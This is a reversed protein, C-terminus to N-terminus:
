GFFNRGKVLFLIVTTVDIKKHLHHSIWVDLTLTKQIMEFPKPNNSERPDTDGNSTAAAAINEAIAYFVLFSIM